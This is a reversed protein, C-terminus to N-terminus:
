FQRTKRLAKHKTEKKERKNSFIIMTLNLVFFVFLYAKMKKLQVDLVDIFLSKRVIKINANELDTKSKLFIIILGKKM